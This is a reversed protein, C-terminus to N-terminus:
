GINIPRLGSSLNPNIPTGRPTRTLPTDRVALIVEGVAERLMQVAQINSLAAQGNVSLVQDGENLDPVSGAIGSKDLVKIVPIVVPQTGAGRPTMDASIDFIEEKEREFDAHYHALREQLEKQAALAVQTKEERWVLQQELSEIRLKAQELLEKETMEASAEGGKKDDKKGGKKPAM